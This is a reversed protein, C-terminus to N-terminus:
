IFFWTALDLVRWGDLTVATVPIWLPGDVIAILARLRGRPLALYLGVFAGYVAVAAAGVLWLGFLVIETPRAQPGVSLTFPPPKSEQRRKM